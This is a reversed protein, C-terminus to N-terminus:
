YNDFSSLSYIKPNQIIHRHIQPDHAQIFLMIKHKVYIGWNHLDKDGQCVHAVTHASIDRGFHLHTDDHLQLTNKGKQSSPLHRKWRWYVCACSFTRQLSLCFFTAVTAIIGVSFYTAVQFCIRWILSVLPLKVWVPGCLTNLIGTSTLLVMPEANGGLLFLFLYRVECM